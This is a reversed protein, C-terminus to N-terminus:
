KKAKVPPYDPLRNCTVSLNSFVPVMDKTFITHSVNFSDITVLYRLSKGLHLEVPFAGLYGIDATARHRLASPLGYGLLTRLLHEIDYMTGLKQIEKVDATADRNIAPYVDNIALKGATIADAYKLDNIRNIMINFSISSSSVGSGVLRSADQGTAEYIPDVAPAGNYEMTVLNPNYLFQFAYPGKNIDNIVVPKTTPAAKGLPKYITNTQIMGKYAKSTDKWLDDAKDVAYPQNHGNVFLVNSEFDSNSRFYMEKVGPLNYILSSAPPPTPPLHTGPNGTGGGGGSGGGVVKPDKTAAFPDKQASNKAELSVNAKEVNLVTLKAATDKKCKQWYDYLNKTFTVDDVVGIYGFHDPASTPYPQLMDRHSYKKNSVKSMLADWNSEDWGDRGSLNTNCSYFYAGKTIVYPTFKSDLPRYYKVHTSDIKFFDTDAIFGGIKSNVGFVWHNKTYSDTAPNDFGVKAASTVFEVFWASAGTDYDHKWQTIETKTLRSLMKQYAQKAAEENFQAITYKTQASKVGSLDLAM